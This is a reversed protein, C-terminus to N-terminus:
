CVPTSKKRTSIILAIAGLAAAVTGALFVNQAEIIYQPTCPATICTALPRPIKSGAFGAFMLLLGLGVVAEELM